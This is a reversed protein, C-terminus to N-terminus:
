RVIPATSEFGPPPSLSVRRDIRIVFANDNGNAGIAAEGGGIPTYRRVFHLDYSQAQEQDATEGWPTFFKGADNQIISGGLTNRTFLTGALLLQDLNGDANVNSLDNGDNTMFGGDAYFTGVVNTVNSRVFINGTAPFSGASDNMLVFGLSDNSDGYEWNGEIILNGNKIVLTKQGRLTRGPISLDGEVVAVPAADADGDELWDPDFSDQDLVERGRVLRAINETLQERVDAASIGGVRFTSDGEGEAGQLLLEEEKGLVGGEIDAGVMRIGIADPNYGVESGDPAVGNLNEDLGMGGAAYRITEGGIEYEVETSLSLGFDDDMELGGQPYVKTTFTQVPDDTLNVTPPLMPDCVEECEPQPAGGGCPDIVNHCSNPNAFGLDANRNDLVGSVNLGVPNGNLNVTIDGPEQWYLAEPGSPVFSFLNRFTIAATKMVSVEQNADVVGYEDISPLVFTFDIARPIVRALYLGVQTLSPALATLAITKAGQAIGTINAVLPESTGIAAGGLRLSERFSIEGKNGEDQAFANLPTPSFFKAETIQSVPNGFQDKLVLALNCTETNNAFPAMGPDACNGPVSLVSIGLNPDTAKIQFNSPASATQNGAQDVLRVVVSYSGAQQFCNAIEAEAGVFNLETFTASAPSTNDGFCSFAPTSPLEPTFTVEITSADPDIGSAPVADSFVNGASFLFIGFVFLWNKNM